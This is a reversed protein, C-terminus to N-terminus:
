SCVAIVGVVFGRQILVFVCFVILRGSILVFFLFLLRFHLHLGLLRKFLYGTFQRFRSLLLLNLLHLHYLLSRNGRSRGTSVISANNINELDTSWSDSDLGCLGEAEFCWFWSHLCHLWHLRWRLHLLNRLRLSILWLWRLGVLWCWNSWNCRNGRLGVSRLGLHRAVLVRVHLRLGLLERLIGLLIWVILVLLRIRVLLSLEVLELLIRVVRLGILEGVLLGVIWDRLRVIRVGRRGLGLVGVASSGVEACADREVRGAGGLFLFVETVEGGGATSGM